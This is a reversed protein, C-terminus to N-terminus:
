SGSYPNAEIVTGGTAQTQISLIGHCNNPGEVRFIAIDAGRPSTQTFTWSSRGAGAQYFRVVQSFPAGYVRYAIGVGRSSVAFSNPYAPLDSWNCSSTIAAPPTRHTGYGLAFGSAFTVILVAASIALLGGRHFTPPKAM